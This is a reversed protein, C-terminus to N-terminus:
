KSGSETMGKSNRREIKLEMVLGRKCEIMWNEDLWDSVKRENEWENRWERSASYYAMSMTSVPVATACHNLHQTVFRFIAPEIGTPTLPIKM